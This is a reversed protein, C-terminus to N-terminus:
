SWYLSWQPHFRVRMIRKEVSNQLLLSYEAIQAGIGKSYSRWVVLWSRKKNVEPSRYWAGFLRVITLAM